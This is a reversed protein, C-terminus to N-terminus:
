APRYICKYSIKFFNSIGFFNTLEIFIAYCYETSFHFNLSLHSFCKACYSAQSASDVVSNFLPVFKLLSVYYLLTECVKIVASGEQTLFIVM